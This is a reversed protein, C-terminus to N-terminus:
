RRPPPPAQFVPSRDSEAQCEGSDGAGPRDEPTAVLHSYNPPGWCAGRLSYGVVRPELGTQSTEGTTGADLEGRVAKYSANGSLKSEIKRKGEFDSIVLVADVFRFYGDGRRLQPLCM